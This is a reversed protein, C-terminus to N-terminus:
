NVTKVFQKDDGIWFRIYQFIVYARVRENPTHNISM